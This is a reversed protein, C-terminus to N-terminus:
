IEFLKIIVGDDGPNGEGRFRNAHLYPALAKSDTLFTPVTRFPKPDDKPFYGNNEVYIRCKAGTHDVGDLMYRASMHRVDNVDVVQTDVGGPLVTGSFLPGSVTGSFPILVVSGAPGELQSIEKSDIRVYIEMILKGSM